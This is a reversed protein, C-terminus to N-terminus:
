VTRAPGHADAIATGQLEPGPVQLGQAIGCAPGVRHCDLPLGKCGRVPIAQVEAEDLARDPQTEHHLRAGAAM